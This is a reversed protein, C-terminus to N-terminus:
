AAVISADEAATQIAKESATAAGNGDVTLGIVRWSPQGDHGLMTTATM